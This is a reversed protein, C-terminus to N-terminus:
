TTFSWEYPDIMVNPAWDTVGSIRAIYSSGRILPSQPRWAVELKTPDFESTGPVPQANEDFVNIANVVSAPDLQESFYVLVVLRPGYTGGPEPDVHHVTPPTVDVVRTITITANGNSGFNSASIQITNLGLELPIGNPDAGITVGVFDYTDWSVNVLPEPFSPVDCNGSADNTLNMWQVSPPTYTFCIEFPGAGPCNGIEPASVTGSLHTTNQDTVYSSGEIEKPMCNDVAEQSGPRRIRCPSALIISVFQEKEDSGSGGGGCGVLYLFLVIVAVFKHLKSM